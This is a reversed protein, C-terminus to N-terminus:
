TNFDNYRKVKSRFLLHQGGSVM